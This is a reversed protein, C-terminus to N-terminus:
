RYHDNYGGSAAADLTGDYWTTLPVSWLVSKGSNAWLDTAWPISNDFEAWSSHNLFASASDVPRGLWAEFAQVDAPSVGAYVGLATV